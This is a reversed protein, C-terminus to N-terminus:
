QMEWFGGSEKRGVLGRAMAQASRQIDREKYYLSDECDEFLTCIYNNTALHEGVEM